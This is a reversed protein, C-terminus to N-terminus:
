WSRGGPKAYDKLEIQSAFGDTMRMMARLLFPSRFTWNRMLMLMRLRGSPALFGGANGKESIEAYPRVRCRRPGLIGFRVPLDDGV